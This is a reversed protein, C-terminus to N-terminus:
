ASKLQSLEVHRNVGDISSITASTHRSLYDSADATSVIVRDSRRIATEFRDTSITVKGTHTLKNFEEASVILTITIPKLKSKALVGYAGVESELRSQDTADFRSKRYYAQISVVGVLMVVILLGEIVISLISGHYLSTKKYFRYVIYCLLIVACTALNYRTSKSIKGM